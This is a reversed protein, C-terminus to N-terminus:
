PPLQRLSVIHLVILLPVGATPVLGLPLLSMPETSPTVTVLRYGITTGIGVAVLLDVIGLANFWVAARHGTGRALERAVFPAALAVAIDGLGAPLALAPPLARLAMVILFVAGVIRFTHPLALRATSGPAALVRAVLPIRAGALLVTLVGVVAVGLWPQDHGPTSRYVGHDALA